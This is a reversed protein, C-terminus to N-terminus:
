SLLEDFDLSPIDELESDVLFKKFSRQVGASRVKFDIVISDEEKKTYPIDWRDYVFEQNGAIFLYDCTNYFDRFYDSDASGAFIFLVQYNMADEFLRVSGRPIQDIMETGIVWVVCPEFLELPNKNMEKMKYLLELIDFNLDNFVDYDSRLNELVRPIDGIKCENFYESTKEIITNGNDDLDNLFIYRQEDDLMYEATKEFAAFAFASLSPYNDYELVLNLYDKRQRIIDLVKDFQGDTQIYMDDDINLVSRINYNREFLKNKIFSIHKYNNKKPSYIFNAALLGCMYTIDRITPSFIGINKKAGTEIFVTEYDFKKHNFVVSEGLTLIDYYNDACSLIKDKQEIVRPNQLLDYLEKFPRKFDEQYYKHITKYGVTKSLETLEVLYETFFGKEDEEVLPVKFSRNHEEKGDISNEIVIGREQTGIKSAANNGLFESSVSANCRLAFRVKFNAFANSGLTSNMEQSAFVLHFGTARGLKTISTLIDKIIDSERGTAESFLQQFEDVLLVCRPLVINYKERLQEIKELGLYSFFTQRAKMCNCLYNLLSIVYRVESTAAVAKVHPTDCKSLYKSLSVKKLDVLFLNLEWPSYEAMLSFLLNHLFVSKGSGTSGVIIAHVNDEPKGFNVVYPKTRENDKLGPRLNIGTASSNFWLSTTNLGPKVIQEVVTNDCKNILDRFRADCKEVSNSDNDFIRLFEIPERICVVTGDPRTQPRNVTSIIVEDNNNLQSLIGNLYDKYELKNRKEETEKKQSIIFDLTDM